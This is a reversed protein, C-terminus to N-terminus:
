EVRDSFRLEFTLQVSLVGPWAALGVETEEVFLVTKSSAWTRSLIGTMRKQAGMLTPAETYM